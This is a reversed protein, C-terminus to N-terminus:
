TLEEKKLVNSAATGAKKGSKEDKAVKGGFCSDV